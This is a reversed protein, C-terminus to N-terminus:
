AVEVKILLHNLQYLERKNIACFTVARIFILRISQIYWINVYNVLLMYFSVSHIIYNNQQSRLNTSQRAWSNWLILHRVILLIVTSFQLLHSPFYSIRLVKDAICQHCVWRNRQQAIKLPHGDTIILCANRTCTSAAQRMAYFTCKSDM